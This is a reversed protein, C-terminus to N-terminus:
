PTKAVGNTPLAIHQESLRELLRPWDPLNTQAGVAEVAFSANAAGISAAGTPTMGQLLAAVVGASYADGAGTPDIVAAARVISVARVSGGSYVTSGRAGDTVYLLLDPYAAALAGVDALGHAASLAVAETVNIILVHLRGLYPILAPSGIGSVIVRAGQAVARDLAATTFANLVPAIVVVEGLRADDPLRAFASAGPDAFCMSTGDAQSYLAASGSAEGSVTVIGDLGVGLSRWAQECISGAFDDGVPYILQAALGLRALSCAISAASGGCYPGVHHDLRRVLVIEGPRPLREVDYIRDFVAAAGVVTINLIGEGRVGERGGAEM